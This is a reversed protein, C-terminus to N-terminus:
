QQALYRTLCTSGTGTGTTCRWATDDCETMHDAAALTRCDHCFALEATDALHLGIAAATVASHLFRLAPDPQGGGNVTYGDEIGLEWLTDDVLRRQAEPLTDYAIRTTRAATPPTIRAHTLVAM